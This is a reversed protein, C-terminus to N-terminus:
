KLEKLLQSILKNEDLDIQKDKVFYFIKEDLIQAENSLYNGKEDIILDSLSTTSILVNGYEPLDLERIKFDKNQFNITFM